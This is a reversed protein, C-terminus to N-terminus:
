NLLFFLLLIFNHSIDDCIHGLLVVLLWLLGLGPGLEIFENLQEKLTLTVLLSNEHVKLWHALVVRVVQLVGTESVDLSTVM